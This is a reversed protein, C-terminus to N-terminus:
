RQGVVTLVAHPLQTGEVSFEYRGAWLKGLYPKSGAEFPGYKADGIDAGKGRIVYRGGDLPPLVYYVQCPSGLCKANSGPELDIRNWTNDVVGTGGCGGLLTLIVAASIALLSKKM